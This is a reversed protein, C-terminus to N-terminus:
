GGGDLGCGTETSACDSSQYDVRKVDDLSPHLTRSGAEESVALMIKASRESLTETRM